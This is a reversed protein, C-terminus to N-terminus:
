RSSRGAAVREELIPEYKALVETWGGDYQARVGSVSHTGRPWWTGLEATFRRFAADVRETERGEKVIPEM